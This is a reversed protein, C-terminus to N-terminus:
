YSYWNWGNVFWENSGDPNEYFLLVLREAAWFTSWRYTWSLCTWPGGASQQGCTQVATQDPYGLLQRVQEAPMGVRFQYEARKAQDYTTGSRTSPSATPACSSAVLAVSILATAAIRRARTTVRFLVADELM